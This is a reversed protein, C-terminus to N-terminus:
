PKISFITGEGTTGGAQTTGYIAGDAGKIVNTDPHAGDAGSFRHLV